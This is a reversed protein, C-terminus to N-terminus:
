DTKGGTPNQENNLLANLRENKTREEKLLNEYESIKDQMPRMEDKIANKQIEIQERTLAGSNILSDYEGNLYSHYFEDPNDKFLKRFQAPAAKFYDVFKNKLEIAESRTMNRPIITTDIFLEHEPKTMIGLKTHSVGYKKMLAYIDTEELKSTDTKSIKNIQDNVVNEPPNYRTYFPTEKLNM